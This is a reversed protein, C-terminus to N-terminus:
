EEEWEKGQEEKEEEEKFANARSVEFYLSVPSHQFHEQDLRRVRHIKSQFVIDILPPQANETHEPASRRSWFVFFVSHKKPPSRPAYIGSSTCLNWELVHGSSAAPGDAGFVFM